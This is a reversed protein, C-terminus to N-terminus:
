LWELLGKKTNPTKLVPDQSSYVRAPKSGRDEQDRDGSYSPHLRSGGAGPENGKSGDKTFV